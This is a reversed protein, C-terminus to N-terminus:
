ANRNKKGFLGGIRGFLSVNEADEGSIAEDELHLMSKPMSKPSEPFGKKGTKASALHVGNARPALPGTASGVAMKPRLPQLTYRLLRPKASLPASEFGAVLAAPAPVSAPISMAKLNSDIPPDESDAPRLEIKMQALAQLVRRPSVEAPEAAAEAPGDEEQSTSLEEESVPLPTADLTESVATTESVAASP